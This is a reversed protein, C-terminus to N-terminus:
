LEALGPVLLDTESPSTALYNFLDGATGGIFLIM